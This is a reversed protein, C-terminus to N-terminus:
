RTQRETPNVDKEQRDRQLISTKRKDTKRDKQSNIRDKKNTQWGTQRKQTEFSLYPWFLGKNSRHYPM